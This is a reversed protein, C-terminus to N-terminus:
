GYTHTKLVLRHLPTDDHIGMQLITILLTFLTSVDRLWDLEVRKLRVVAGVRRMEVGLEQSAQRVTQGKGAVREYIENRLAESLVPSSRFYQNLPFPQLDELTEPPLDKKNNKKKNDGQEGRQDRQKRQDGDEEDERRANRGGEGEELQAGMRVLNGEKDYASLYNTSGKLPVRFVAGPGRFWQLMRKRQLTIRKRKNLTPTTTFARGHGTSVVLFCPINQLSSCCQLANASTSRLLSPPM